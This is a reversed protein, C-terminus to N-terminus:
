VWPSFWGKRMDEIVKDKACLSPYLCYFQNNRHKENVLKSGKPHGIRVTEKCEISTSGSRIIINRETDRALYSGHHLINNDNFMEHNCVFNPTFLTESSTTKKLTQDKKVMHNLKLIAAVRSINEFCWDWVPHNVDENNASLHTSFRTQIIDSLTSDM